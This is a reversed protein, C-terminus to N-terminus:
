AATGGSKRRRWRLGVDWCLVLLGLVSTVNQMVISLPVIWRFTMSVIFLGFLATSARESSQIKIGVLAWLVFFAGLFFIIRELLPM